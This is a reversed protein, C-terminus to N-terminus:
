EHITLQSSCAESAMALNYWSRIKFSSLTLILTKVMSTTQFQPFIHALHFPRTAQFPLIIGYPDSVYLNPILPNVSRALALPGGSLERLTQAVNCEHGQLEDFFQYLKLKKMSGNSQLCSNVNGWGKGLNNIFKLNYELPTRVIGHATMNNVVIRYQNSASAVSEGPTTTFTDFDNVVSKLRKDKM